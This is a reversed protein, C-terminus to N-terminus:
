YVPNILTLTIESTVINKGPLVYKVKFQYPGGVVRPFPTTLLGAYRPALVGTDAYANAVQNSLDIWDKEYYHAQNYIFAATNNFQRVQGASVDSEEIRLNQQPHQRIFVGRTPPVGVAEPKRWTIFFRNELPYGEYVVPYIFEEYFRNGSLVAELQILPEYQSGGLLEAGDWLEQSLISKGLEHVGNRIPWRWQQEMNAAALKAQLTTYASTRVHASYVEHAQLDELTGEAVKTTVETGSGDPIEATAESVNQDISQGVSLPLDLLEFTYLTSPQLTAPMTFQVERSQPSYGIDFWGSSSAGAAFRGKQVWKTRDIEFLYPQGRKLKIYGQQSEGPYYNIQDIVPYSYAINSEPIFDPAKGTTFTAEKREVYRQGQVTVPIWTGNQNEEFSVQVALLLEQEPPFIDFANFASVDHAANWQLDGQIAVGQQKVTFEDLRIRFQKRREDVDVMEFVEDVPMNFVAQPTNFVSVDRSSATPTVDAIVTIGELVSGGQLNCEEGITVEFRCDGKVLGGLVNFRGGVIGRMWFPNPLKAQLLAAAGIELISVSKTKGFLKVRIGIKGEFYAYAQGNAYWGNIGIPGSSGSCSASGYDKLMIDFGAGAKFSAYFMLFTLDGTDMSFAAGFAFGAGDGLANLDRMYDLDEPDMGLIDAVEPPPPPSGLIKTGVMFYSTSQVSIPGVGMKLGLRDEPTGVWVYWEEPAFHLVAWGARGKDGVGQILGGAVNVFAEFNGHLVRNEFDYSIFVHASISGRGDGAKDLAGYIQTATQEGSMRDVLAGGVPGAVKKLDAAAKAVKSAKEQLKALEGGIAPTALYGNGQFAIYRIGGGDFFSIELTVDGNFAQPKPHSAIEVTAKLGLGAAQEPVYVIGSSTQGLSSGVGQTDMTMHYYAGGGFGYVGVGPFVPIGVPMSALADAFWYRYGDVQGFIATAEVKIGPAFEADIMGNFGEGYVPDDEYFQLRGKFKFAGGDVDIAVDHVKIYSYQWDQIGENAAMEGVISLGSKGSIAGGGSGSLNVLLDFDLGVKNQDFTSFGINNISVPLKAMAQTAAESGFSFSGVEMYPAVSQIKLNEFKIDALNVGKDDSGLKTSIDMRGHLNAEPLFRGDRVAVTISSGEYLEVSSTQFMEFQLDDAMEVLFVYEQQSPNFTAEYYFYQDDESVPIIMEGDFGGSILQNAVLKVGVSDLSFQWGNLDGEDIPILNQAELEGSFGLHDIVVDRAAFTVPTGGHSSEFETPLRVTLERLYFGQWLEGKGIQLDPHLLEYGKPFKLSTANRTDSMDFVANSVEFGVDDLGAVQFPPLDVEVLLDDWSRVTTTFSTILNGPLVDGDTNEPVLLDRSFKVDADLHMEKFGACEFTAYTGSKLIIQSKDGDLNIAYDAVLELRGDGAIGGAQTFKIGKGRFTLSKDSQPIDLRMFVELEAYRPKLTVSAIIIEYVNGGIEQKIAVPLSLLDNGNLYGVYKNLQKVEEQFSKAQAVWYRASDIVDQPGVMGEPALAYAAAEPSALTAEAFLADFDELDAFQRVVRATAETAVAATARGSNVPKEGESPPEETKPKAPTTEGGTTGTTTGWVMGSIGLFLLTIFISRM